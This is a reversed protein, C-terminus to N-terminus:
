VIAAFTLTLAVSKLLLFAKQKIGKSLRFFGMSFPRQLTQSMIVAM